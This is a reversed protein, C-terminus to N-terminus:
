SCLKLGYLTDPTHFLPSLLDGLLSSYNMKLCWNSQQEKSLLCMPHKQASHKKKQQDRGQLPVSWMWSHSSWLKWECGSKQPCSSNKREFDVGFQKFIRLIPVFILCIDPPMYICQYPALQPFAKTLFQRRAAKKKKKKKRCVLVYWFITLQWWIM